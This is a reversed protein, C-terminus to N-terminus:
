PNLFKLMMEKYENFEIQGDGNIDIQNIIKEWTKNSFKTQLGLINKFDQCSIVKKIGTKNFLTFSIKLNEENLLNKKNICARVFEEFELFGTKGQDIYKLVKLVEKENINGIQKKLKNVFENHSIKGIGKDDIFIFFKKIKDLDEKKIIHHVIYALSAQQFFFITNTQFSIINNYYEEIENKSIIFKYFYKKFWVHKLCEFASFRKKSDYRLMNHILDIADNSVNNWENKRFDMKGEKVMQIIEKDSDGWFPPKGSLLMFMLVGISWIDCKENYNRNLVEPAIYYPTGVKKTLNKHKRFSRASSFDSIKINLLEINENKIIINEFSEILISELKLDRHLINNDHCYDIASLIQKIIYCVSYENLPGQQIKEFLDGENCYENILYFCKEDQYFEYIKLINMHDLTRLIAIEKMFNKEDEQLDIFAKKIVTMSRIMGSFKNKVKKTMSTTGHQIPELIEYHDKPKGITESFLM